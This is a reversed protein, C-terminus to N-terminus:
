SHADGATQVASYYEEMAECARNDRPADEEPVRFLYM